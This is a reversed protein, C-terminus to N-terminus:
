ASSAFRAIRRTTSATHHSRPYTSREGTGAKTTEGRVAVEIEGDLIQFIEEFDHRHPPPGSGAPILMDILAYRGATDEGNILITYTNDAVALHPLTDDKPTAVTPQRLGDDPPITTASTM